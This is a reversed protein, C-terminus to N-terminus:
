WKDKKKSTLNEMKSKNLVSLAEISSKRQLFWFRSLNRM